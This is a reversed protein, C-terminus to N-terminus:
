REELSARLRSVATLVEDRNKAAKMWGPLRWALNAPGDPRDRLSAGVYAELYGLHDENNAWLLHGGCCEARLWLAVGFRPDHGERAEYRKVYQGTQPDMWAGHDRRLVVDHGNVTVFLRDNSWDRTLACSTCVM